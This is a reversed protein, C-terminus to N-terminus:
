TAEGLKGSEGPLPSRTYTRPAYGEVQEDPEPLFKWWVEQDDRSYVERTVPDLAVLFYTDEIILLRAIDPPLEKKSNAYKM